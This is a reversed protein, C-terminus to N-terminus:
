PKVGQFLGIQREPLGRKRRCGESCTDIPELQGGSATYAVDWGYEPGTWRKGCVCCARPEPRKATAKPPRRTM